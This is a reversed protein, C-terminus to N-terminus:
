ILGAFREIEERTNFSHLCVRIREKGKAVTPSLITKVLFNENLLREAVIKTSELDKFVLIQIPSKEDSFQIYKECLERFLSINEQLKERSIESEKSSSIEVQHKIKQYQQAPLATTYIFSRAFNILYNKLNESGLVVAGHSGYAKGFTIIKAFISQNLSLESCIGTGNNGFVGGSHAEDVILFLKNETCFTSIEELPAFDGDMSYLSEVAVFVDALPNKKRFSEVKKALDQLDNHKFSFSQTMGLRIGDRVSAHILDDCLILDNRTGICSFLGLNADYGSNFVLGAEMGFFTELYSELAEAEKSNGSILRSGGSGSQILNEGAFDKSKSLGLYDNSFFDVKNETEFVKLERLSGDLFRDELKKFSKPNM